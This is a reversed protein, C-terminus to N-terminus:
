RGVPFLPPTHSPSKVARPEEAMRPMTLGAAPPPSPALAPRFEKLVAKAPAAPVPVRSVVLTRLVSVTFIALAVGVAWPLIVGYQDLGFYVATLMGSLGLTPAFVVACLIFFPDDRARKKEELKPRAPLDHLKLLQTCIFLSVVLAGLGHLIYGPLGIAFGMFTFYVAGALVAPVLLLATLNITVAEDRFLYLGREEIHRVGLYLLGVTFVALLVFLLRALWDFDTGWNVLVHRWSLLAWPVTATSALAAAYTVVYALRRKSVFRNL